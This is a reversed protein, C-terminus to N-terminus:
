VIKRLTTRTLPVWRNDQTLPFIHEPCDFQKLIETRRQWVFLSKRVLVVGFLKTVLPPGLYLTCPTHM